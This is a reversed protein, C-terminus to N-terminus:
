KNKIGSPLNNVYNIIQAMDKDSLGTAGNVFFSYGDKIYTFLEYGYKKQFYEALYSIQSKYQLSKIITAIKASDTMFPFKSVADYIAKAKPELYKKDFLYVVNKKNLEKYYLPSFPNSTPESAFIQQAEKEEKSTTINLVDTISKGTKYMLYLVYGGGAMLLIPLIQKQDFKM